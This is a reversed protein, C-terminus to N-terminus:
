RRRAATEKYGVFGALVAAILTFVRGSPDADFGASVLARAFRFSDWIPVSGDAGLARILFQRDIFYYAAFMGVTAIIVAFCANVVRSPGSGFAVSKGVLAGMAIALYVFQRNSTTVVLYWGLGSVAAVVSGYILGLMENGQRLKIAGIRPRAATTWPRAVRDRPPAFTPASDDIVWPYRDARRADQAAAAAVVLCGTTM